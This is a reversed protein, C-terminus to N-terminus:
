YAIVIDSGSSATIAVAEIPHIVGAALGVFAITNGSLDTITLSGAGGLYVGRCAGGSFLTASPTVAVFSGSPSTSRQFPTNTPLLAM